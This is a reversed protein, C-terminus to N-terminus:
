RDGGSHVDPVKSEQTNPLTSSACTADSGAQIVPTEASATELGASVREEMARGKETGTGAQRGDGEQTRPSEALCQSTLGLRVAPNERPRQTGAQM